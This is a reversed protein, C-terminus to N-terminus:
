FKKSSKEACASSEVPTGRMKTGGGSFSRSYPRAHKTTSFATTCRSGQKKGSVIPTITANPAMRQIEEAADGFTMALTTLYIDSTGSEFQVEVMALASRSTNLPAWDVIRTAKIRKSKGAFWRQKPFFETLNVTELRQAGAGEFIDGWGNTANLPAQETIGSSVKLLDERRQLELWLFSYPAMTFRYPEQGIVPFDVYGVMEVPTLGELKSLDLDVPQAFRSLNAVCLVQEDQYQRLYALIKRNPPDLFEIAGRGFVAFFNEAKDPM